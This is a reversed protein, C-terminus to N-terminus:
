QKDLVYALLVMPLYFFGAFLLRRADALALTRMLRLAHFLMVLGLVLALLASWHGTIGFAWPLLGTVLLCFTYLAVLFASYRDRGGQSPLLHYGAKAYDDHLAWTVAWFHPFQWVFQVAFLLGGALGFSGAAAVYGLLPPFAGPIAGVFTAWPSLRKLPTYLAVYIFLSLLSLIGTLQGFTSWLLFTGAAGAVVAITIAEAMGMTGSVLPREKTRAMRSDQEVEIVENFATSSGTVLLGGLGLVLLDVVSFAGTPVGVGYGLMASLVVLFTVRLKFLLALDKLKAMVGTRARYAEQTKM